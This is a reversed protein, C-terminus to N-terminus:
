AFRHERMSRDAASVVENLRNSLKDEGHSPPVLLWLSVLQKGGHLSAPM